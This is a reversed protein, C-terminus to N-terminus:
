RAAIKMVLVTQDDHQRARGIFAALDEGIGSTIERASRAHLRQIANGLNKRGFQKGQENMAEVVGDTYMVLIDGPKLAVRKAAFVTSREVGIPVSKSDITEIADAEGRYILLPQQAANAYELGGTSADVIVLGVTAYHDLDVKGSVGRNVWSLLTAADKASATILNLISRIMVMVLSAAIGKGAVDGVAVVVKDAKTQIVDYYDSCVGRAPNSYVSFSLGTLEPFKKPVLALQVDAAIAAEREIDGRETAEVIAQADAVAIAGFEALLKAGEFVREDFCGRAAALSAAGIVRGGVVLPAAILAGQRLWDEDGNDPLGEGSPLFVPAGSRSVEGLLGEGLKFRSRRVFAAVRERERPLSEPLKYPPPYTGNLSRVSVTEEFEDALVLIGGKAGTREVLVGLLRDLAEQLSFGPKAAAQASLFLDRISGLSSEYYDVSRELRRLTDAFFLLAFSLILGYFLPVVLAQFLPSSSGLFAELALYAISGLALPVRTRRLFEREPSFGVAGGTSPTFAMAAVPLVCVLWLAMIAASGLFGFAVGFALVLCSAGALGFAIWPIPKVGFPRLRISLLSSFLVLDSALYLQPLPLAVFALDRLFLFAGFFAYPVLVRGDKAARLILFSVVIVLSLSLKILSPGSLASVFSGFM